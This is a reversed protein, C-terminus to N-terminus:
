FEFGAGLASGANQPCLCHQKERWTGQCCSCSSVRGHEGWDGHGSSLLNLGHGQCCSDKRWTGLGQGALSISSTYTVGFFAEMMLVKNDLLGEYM